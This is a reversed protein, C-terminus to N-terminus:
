FGIYDISDILTISYGRFLSYNPPWVVPGLFKLGSFILHLIQGVTRSVKHCVGRALSWHKFNPWMHLERWIYQESIVDYGTWCSICFNIHYCIIIHLNYGLLFLTDSFGTFNRFFLFVQSYTNNHICSISNQTKKQLYPVTDKLCLLFSCFRDM